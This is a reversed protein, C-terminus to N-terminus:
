IEVTGGSRKKTVLRSITTQDHFIPSDEPYGDYWLVLKVLFFNM